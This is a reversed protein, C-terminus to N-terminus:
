IGLLMIHQFRNLDYKRTYRVPISETSSIVFLLENKSLFLRRQKIRDFVSCQEVVVYLDGPFLESYSKRLSSM